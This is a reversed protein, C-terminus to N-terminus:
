LHDILRDIVCIRGMWHFLIRGTGEDQQWAYIEHTSPRHDGALDKIKDRNRPKRSQDATWVCLADLTDNVQRWRRAPLKKLFSEMQRKVSDSPEVSDLLPSFIETESKDNRFKSWLLAGWESLEAEKGAILLLSEPINAGEWENRSIQKGAALARYLAFHKYFELSTSLQVPLRPIHMLDDSSEFVYLTEAGSLMALNQMYGNVGKFGGTLNFVVKRGEKQADGVIFPFSIL